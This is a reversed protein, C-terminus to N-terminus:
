RNISVNETGFTYEDYRPSERITRKRRRIADYFREQYSRRIQILRKRTARGANVILDVCTRANKLSQSWFVFEKKLWRNNRHKTGYSTVKFASGAIDGDGDGNNREGFRM